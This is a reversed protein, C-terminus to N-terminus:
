ATATQAIRHLSRQLGPGSVVIEFTRDRGVERRWFVGGARQIILGGAAIDWLRVGSEVYGDFRASAVYTMSLAAAGMIRIKRVRHVLSEFVPLMRNLTSRKKAFGLAVISEELRVRSSTSIRRGNLRAPGHSTATWLDDTFPDLVVAACTEYGDEYVAGAGPGGETRRRCQLAISVCAHPVGYAFNVTGDIPDVVWRLPNGPDGVMGEEGLISAQPLGARLTREILRQCQVDLELKIDHQTAQHVKKPRRLERHMREGALRAAHVACALAHDTQPATLTLSM